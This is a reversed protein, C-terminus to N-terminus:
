VFVVFCMSDFDADAHFVPLTEAKRCNKSLRECNLMNSM